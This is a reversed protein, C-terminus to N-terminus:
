GAAEAILHFFSGTVRSRQGGAPGIEAGWGDILHAFPDDSGAKSVTSYHFEHGRFISGKQGLACPQLLTAYRYGLSMKRRAFSTTHGLLGAMKHASGDADILTEGLVMYGGCEGHVPRTEAFTKVAALFHESQALAGAHLEPYGGPLWCLGCDDPPAEDALPSFLKVEAGAQRWGNLVHPYMFAFAQDSALAIRQDPPRIAPGSPRMGGPLENACEVLSDLDISAEIMDALADLRADLDATESAQVLGLHREPLVLDGSRRVAGLVPVPQRDMAAMIGKLHRDSAVRNLITGAVHVGPDLTSFGHLVAAASQMQSSVDLVMLVPIGFVRALDASAGTANAPGDAGDFLGVASEIVVVDAGSAQHTLLGSLLEPSMAWTDLNIGPAGCAAAHFAPDIYDPGSKAALVAVGRRKLARLVGLTVTTKGAGSKPAAIIIARTM